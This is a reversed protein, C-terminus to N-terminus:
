EFNMWRRKQLILRVGPYPRAVLEPIIKIDKRSDVSKFTYKRVIMSLMVKEELQAFKQGVCNRPGASFPIHSYAHRNKSNEPLWRDPDFKEPEPFYREDRSCGYIGIQVMVGVPITYGGIEVEETIKRSVGLLTPYVRICEKMVRDMYKMEGLEKYTPLADSNGFIQQQEEFLQEQVEPHHGLLFLAWATSVTTTDHGAFVFTDVENRIDQDTFFPRKETEDLLLDLFALRLKTESYESQQLKRLEKRETIVQFKYNFYKILLIKEFITSHDPQDKKNYFEIM